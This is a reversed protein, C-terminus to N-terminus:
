ISRDLMWQLAKKFNPGTGRKEKEAELTERRFDRLLWCQFGTDRAKTYVEVDTTLLAGTETKVIGMGNQDMLARGCESGVYRGEYKRGPRVDGFYLKELTEVQM